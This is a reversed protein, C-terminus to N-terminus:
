KSLLLQKHNMTETLLTVEIKNFVHITIGNVFFTLVTAALVM